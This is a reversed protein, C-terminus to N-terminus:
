FCVELRIVVLPGRDGVLVLNTHDQTSGAGKPAALVADMVHASYGLHHSLTLAGTTAGSVVNLMGSDSFQALIASLGEGRGTM